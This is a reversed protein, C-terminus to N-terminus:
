LPDRNSPLAHAEMWDHLDARSKINLAFECTRVTDGQSGTL